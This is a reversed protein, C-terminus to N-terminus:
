FLEKVRLGAERHQAASLADGSICWRLVAADVAEFKGKVTMYFKCDTHIKCDVRFCKGMMTRVKALHRNPEVDTRVVIWGASVQYAPLIHLIEARSKVHALREVVNAATVPEPPPPPMPPPPIPHLLPAAAAAAAADTADADSSSSSEGADVNGGDSPDESLEAEIEDHAEKWGAGLIEEFSEGLVAEAVEDMIAGVEKAPAKKGHKSQQGKKKPLVGPDWEVDDGAGDAGDCDRPPGKHKKGDEAEEGEVPKVVVRRAVAADEGLLKYRDGRLLRVSWKSIHVDVNSIAGHEDVDVSEMVLAALDWHSVHRLLGMTVDGGFPLPRRTQVFPLRSVQIHM